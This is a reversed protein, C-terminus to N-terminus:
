AGIGGEGSSELTKYTGMRAPSRGRSRKAQSRSRGRRIEVVERAEDSSSYDPDSARMGLRSALRLVPSTSSSGGAM